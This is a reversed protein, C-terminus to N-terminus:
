TKIGSLTSNTNMSPKANTYAQKKIKKKHFPYSILRLKKITKKEVAISMKGLKKTFPYLECCKPIIVEIKKPYKTYVKKLSECNM